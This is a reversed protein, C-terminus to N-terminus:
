GRTRSLLVGHNYGWLGCFFIFISPYDGGSGLVPHKGREPYLGKKELFLTTAGAIVESPTLDAYSTRSGRAETETPFCARVMVKKFDLGKFTPLEDMLIPDHEM